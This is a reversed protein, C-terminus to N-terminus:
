IKHSGTSLFRVIVPDSLYCIIRYKAVCDSSKTEFIEREDIGLTLRDRRKQREGTGL